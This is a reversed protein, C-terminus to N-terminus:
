FLELQETLPVNHEKFLAELEELRKGGYPVTLEYTGTSDDVIYWKRPSLRLFNGTYGSHKSKLYSAEIFQVTAETIKM